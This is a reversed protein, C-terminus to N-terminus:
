PTWGQAVAWATLSQWASMPPVQDAWALEQVSTSSATQGSVVSYASVSASATPLWAASEAIRFGLESINMVSSFMASGTYGEASRFIVDTASVLYRRVGDGSDGTGRIELSYSGDPYGTPSIFQVMYLINTGSPIAPKGVGSKYITGYDDYSSGIYSTQDATIHEEVRIASNTNEITGISNDIAITGSPSVYTSGGAIASGNIGSIKNEADYSYSPIEIASGNIGTIKNEGDYSYSPIASAWALEAVRSSERTIEFDGGYGTGSLSSIYISDYNASFKYPNASLSTMHGSWLPTREYWSTSSLVAISNNEEGWLGSFNGGSLLYGASVPGGIYTGFAAQSSDLTHSTLVEPSPNIWLASNTAEIGTRTLITGSPSEVSSNLAFASMPVIIEDDDVYIYASKCRGADAAYAAGDAHTVYIRSGNIHTIHGSGDDTLATVVEASADLKSTYLSLSFDYISSIPMLEDGSRFYEARESTYASAAKYSYKSYNSILPLGNIGSIGTFYGNLEGIGSATATVVEASSDLKGSIFTEMSAPTIFSGSRVGIFGSGGSAYSTMTGDLQVPTASLSIQDNENDVVIPDVGTYTHGGTPASATYATFASEDLKSSLSSNYAYNGSPQFNGSASADLKGSLASNYAYDGSPAFQSSASGPLYSSLSSSYAYDGSPQFMSSATKELYDGTLGSVVSSMSTVSTELSSVVSSMSSCCQDLASQDAKSSVASSVIATVTASDVNGGIATGSIATIKQASYELASYPILGATSASGGLDLLEGISLIEAM